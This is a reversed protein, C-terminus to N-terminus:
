GAKKNYIMFILLSIVLSLVTIIGATIFQPSFPETISLGMFTVPIIGPLTGLLSATVFRSYNFKLVGLYMSVLDCPLCNIARLFFTFFFEHEFQKEFLRKLRPKNEIKKKIKKEIGHENTIRGIAYPVSFELVAGICNVALALPVPFLFGCALQLAIAPFIVTLSKLVYLLLMFLVALAPSEPSYSLIDDVSLDKFENILILIFGICLVFVLFKLFKKM